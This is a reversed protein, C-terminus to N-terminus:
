EPPPFNGTAVLQGRESEARQGGGGGGGWVGVWGVGLGEKLDNWARVAKVFSTQGFLIWVAVPRANNVPGITQVM